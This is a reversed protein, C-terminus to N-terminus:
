AREERQTTASVAPSRATDCGPHTTQGPEYVTMATGCGACTAVDSLPHMEADGANGADGRGYERLDPATDRPSAAFLGADGAANGLTGGAPTPSALTGGTADGRNGSTLDSKAAEPSAPSATESRREATSTLRYLRQKKPSPGRKSDDVEVGITRLAPALRKLQGGARTPDKPWKKPLREPTDVRDLLESATLTIGDPGSRDVLAVVAQAFPEGDLVDAVADRASAKYSGTTDWGQVQDVAALVRAFDAMRPRETLQVDPLAKLVDALLDFLSALIGAHADAYAADMEGEERRKADPITHLEITVLREALDGALAGADITTMALVRRFELVVVDDDTYLARDVIGDGTVARCLADSLWDPIISVNDLCLAWSNFAQTAWAKIDRPATRKPAGSPDVIGIVMKAAYSKGTGQEGRFTLIPHPLDPIFCAVLWAVLLRFGEEDTNLLDRLKALGDGDRVPEPLPKMAGSRRFLVPSSPERTWGDPGISVCRGDSTALDVIIRDDHRAVRLHLQEPEADTAIGELVTMADALASQSPVSGGNADTYLRALSSRLGARGRLPLATNPGDTKVAYPRGDDSMFFGYRERALKVLLSAQSPGRRGEGSEESGQVGQESREVAQDVDVLEAFRKGADLHDSVDKGAVPEVVRVRVGVKRLSEAVQAAHKRGPEDRDAIVVTESVGVFHQAYADQWKGAGGINTTATMGLAGLRDADKEGEVVAVVEGAAAARIVRPLNYPVRRIGRVGAQGDPRYQRFTKREGNFGPEYRKVVSLVEGHEDAYRYEAVVQPRMHQRETKPEDYLDAMALDLAAVVDVIQCGAHCNVVVGDGSRNRTVSLSPSGDDHAPCQWSSGRGSCGHAM